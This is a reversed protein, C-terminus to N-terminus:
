NRTLLPKEQKAIQEKHAEHTKEDMMEEMVTM